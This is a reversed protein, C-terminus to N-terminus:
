NRTRIQGYILFYLLSIGPFIVPLIAFANPFNFYRLLFLGILVDSLYVLLRTSQFVGTIWIVTHAAIILTWILFGTGVARKINKLSGTGLWTVVYFPFLIIFSFIGGVLFTYEFSEWPKLQHVALGFIFTEICFAFLYYLTWRRRDSM